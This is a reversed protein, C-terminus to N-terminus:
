RCFCCLGRFFRKVSRWRTRPPDCIAPAEAAPDLWGVLEGFHNLVAEGRAPEIKEESEDEPCLVSNEEVKVESLKSNNDERVTDDNGLPAALPLADGSPVGDGYSSVPTEIDEALEEGDAGGLTSESESEPTQVDGCATTPVTDIASLLPAALRVLCEDTEDAYTGEMKNVMIEELMELLIINVAARDINNYNTAM